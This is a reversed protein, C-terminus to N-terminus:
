ICTYGFCGRGRRNGARKAKQFGVEKSLTTQTNNTNLHQETLKHKKNYTITNKINETTISNTIDRKSGLRKVLLARWPLFVLPKGWVLGSM